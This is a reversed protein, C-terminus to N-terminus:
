ATAYDFETDFHDFVNGTRRTSAVQRGGMGYASVPPGKMIWNTIDIRHINQEVILRRQAVHLLALQPDPVGARGSRSRPHHWLYNVNYYSNGGSSRRDRGAHIKQITEMHGKDRRFVFGGVVSLKKQDAIKGTEIFKRV